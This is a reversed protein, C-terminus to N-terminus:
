NYVISGILMFLYSCTLDVTENGAKVQDSLDLSINFQVLWFHTGM